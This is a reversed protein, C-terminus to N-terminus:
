KDDGDDHEGDPLAGDTQLWDCVFLILFSLGALVVAELVYGMGCAMGIGGVGWIAAGSAVGRLRGDSSNSIVAGGGIFGLGGIMGQVARTADIGSSLGADVADITFNMTVMMLGASGLSVLMYARMGLPKSKRERDYGILLGLAAAVVARLIFDPLEILM